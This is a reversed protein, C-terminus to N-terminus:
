ARAEQAANFAACCEAVLSAPPADGAALARTLLSAHGAIRVLKYAPAPEVTITTGDGLPPFQGGSASLYEAAAAAELKARGPTDTWLAQGRQVWQESLWLGAAEELTAVAIRSVVPDENDVLGYEDSDWGHGGAILPEPRRTTVLFPGTVVTTRDDM